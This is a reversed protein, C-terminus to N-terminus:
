PFFRVGPNTGKDAVCVTPKGNDLKKVVVVSEHTENDSTDGWTSRATADEGPFSLPVIPCELASGNTMKATARLTDPNARTNIKVYGKGDGRCLGLIRLAMMGGRNTNEALKDRKFM